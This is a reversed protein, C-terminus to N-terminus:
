HARRMLWTVVTYVFSIGGVLFASVIFVSFVSDFSSIGLVQITVGACVLTGISLSFRYKYNALEAGMEIVYFILLLVFTIALVIDMTGMLAQLLPPSVACRNQRGAGFPRVAPM